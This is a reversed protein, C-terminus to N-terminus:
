WTNRHILQKRIGSPFEYMTVIYIIYIYIYTSTRTNKRATTNNYYTCLGKPDNLLRSGPWLRTFTVRTHKSHIRHKSVRTTHQSQQLYLIDWIHFSHAFVWCVKSLQSQRRVQCISRNIVVPYRGCIDPRIITNDGVREFVM